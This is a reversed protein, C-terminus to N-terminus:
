LGPAYLLGVFFSSYGSWEMVVHGECYTQFATGICHLLLEASTDEHNKIHWHASTSPLQSSLQCTKEFTSGEKFGSLLPTISLHNSM